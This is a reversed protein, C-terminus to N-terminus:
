YEKNTVEYKDIFYPSLTFPETGEGSIAPVFSGGPVYVMGEPIKNEEILEYGSPYFGLDVPFNKFILSPNYNSVIATKFGEKELKLQIPGVPLNPKDPDTGIYEREFDTMGNPKWYDDVDNEDLAAYASSKDQTDGM